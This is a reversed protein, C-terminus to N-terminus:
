KGVLERYIELTLDGTTVWKFRQAQAQRRRVLEPERLPLQLERGLASVWEKVDLPNDIWTVVDGGAEPLGGVRSAVVSTGSALAELVSLGFGENLSPAVFLDALRYLHALENDTVSELLRVRSRVSMQDLRRRTEWANSTHYTGGVIVLDHPVQGALQAYAEILTALNKHIAWGGVYLIFPRSLGFKECVQTESRPDREPGFHSAISQYIVRITSPDLHYYNVLDRRTSESVAILCNFRRLMLGQLWRWYLRDVVPFLDPLVRHTLDHVTVVSPCTLGLVGLNKMAHFVDPRERHVLRPFNLQAWLRIGMRHGVPIVRQRLNPYASLEPESRTLFVECTTSPAAQALATLWGVTYSRTGGIPPLGLADVFVKM